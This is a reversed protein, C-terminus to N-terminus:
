GMSHCVNEQKSAASIAADIAQRITMVPYNSDNLMMANRQFNADFKWGYATGYYENLRKNQADLWNLRKTDASGDPTVPANGAKCRAMLSQATVTLLNLDVESGHLIVALRNLTAQAQSDTKRREQLEVREARLMDILKRVVHATGGVDDMKCLLDFSAMYAGNKEALECSVAEGYIEQLQEDTLKNTTM